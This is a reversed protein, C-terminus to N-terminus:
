IADDGFKTKRYGAQYQQVAGPQTRVLIRNATRVDIAKVDKDMIQKEDHMLALRRLALGVDEEPLQVIAGSRLTLDWRRDSRLNATEVRKSIEPEASLLGLLDSAREPAKDGVVVVYNKFRGLNEDTLVTGDEAVLSLRKNRQWLAVPKREVMNIYITDPLRREVQVKEVWAIRSIMDQANKPNFAILPAGKELKIIAKLVDADVHQRGEVVINQLTFGYNSTVELTKNHAWQKTQMHADSMFYWAAIWGFFVVVAALAGLRKAVYIIRETKAGRRKIITSRKKNRKARKSFFPM